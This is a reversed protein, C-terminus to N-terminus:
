LEEWSALYNSLSRLGGGDTGDVPIEKRGPLALALLAAQYILAM